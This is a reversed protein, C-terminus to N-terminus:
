DYQKEKGTTAVKTIRQPPETKGTESNENFSKM